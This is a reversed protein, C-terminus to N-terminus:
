FILKFVPYYLLSEPKSRVAYLMGHNQNESILQDLRSPAILLQLSKSVKSLVNYLLDNNSLKEREAVKLQTYSIINLLEALFPRFSHILMDANIPM